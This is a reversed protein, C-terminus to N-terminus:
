NYLLIWLFFIFWSLSSWFQFLFLNYSLYLSKISHHFQFSFFNLLLVFFILLILILNSFMVYLFPISPYFQFCILIKCFFGLFIYIFLILISTSIRTFLLIGKFNQINLMFKSFLLSFLSISYFFAGNTAFRAFWEVLAM